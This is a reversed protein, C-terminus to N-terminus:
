YIFCVRKVLISYYDYKNELINEALLRAGVVVVVAVMILVMFWAALKNKREQRM